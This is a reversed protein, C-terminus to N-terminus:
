LCNEGFVEKEPPSPDTVDATDLHTNSGSVLDRLGWGM